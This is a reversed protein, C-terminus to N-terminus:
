INYYYTGFIMNVEEYSQAKKFVFAEFGITEDFLCHLLHFCYM